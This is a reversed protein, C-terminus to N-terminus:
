IIPLKYPTSYEGNTRITGNTRISNNTASITPTLTTNSSSNSSTNNSQCQSVQFKSKTERKNTKSSTTAHSILSKSVPVVNVDQDLLTQVTENQNDEKRKEYNEGRKLWKLM